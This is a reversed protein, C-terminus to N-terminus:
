DDQPFFGKPLTIYLQVTLFICVFLSALALFRHHLVAHLSRAYARALGNLGGEVARDFLSRPRDKREPKVFYACIMPTVSLSVVTSV